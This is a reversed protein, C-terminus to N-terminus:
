KLFLYCNNGAPIKSVHLYITLSLFTSFNITLSISVEEASDSLSDISSYIVKVRRIIWTKLILKNIIKKGWM